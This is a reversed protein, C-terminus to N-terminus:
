RPSLKAKGREPFPIEVEDLDNPVVTNQFVSRAEECLERGFYRTSLHTLALLEVDAGAALTAAQRATSHGTQAARDSEEDGFTSDHILLSTGHAALQTAECPQTDGTLAIKRGKRPPGMVDQAGVRNGGVEVSEGRQLRGFAPGEPVGLEQARQPDFHGPRDEEFLVYGLSKISHETPFTAIRYGDRCLVSGAELEVLELPYSLRGFIRRLTGVLNKLGKPGFITMPTDRGQLDFTKLMGPLGLYHDAHFHTIFVEPVPALGMSRLMQRQTGEGCDFLM